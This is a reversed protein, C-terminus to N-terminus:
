VKRDYMSCVDMWTIVEHWPERCSRRLAVGDRMADRMCLIGAGWMYWIFGMGVLYKSIEVKVPSFEVNM